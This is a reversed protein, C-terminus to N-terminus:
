LDRHHERWTDCLQLEEVLREFVPLLVAGKTCRSRDVAMNMVANFDLLLINRDMMEKTLLVINNWFVVQAGNPAYVRVITTEIGLLLGQM